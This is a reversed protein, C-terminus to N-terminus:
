GELSDLNYRLEVPLKVGTLMLGDDWFQKGLKVWEPKDPLPYIRIDDQKPHILTRLHRIVKQRREGDLEVLFVSYQLPLAIKKLYRHVRGLRKPNAIDYAIIHPLRRNAM